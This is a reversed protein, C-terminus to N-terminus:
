IYPPLTLDDKDTNIRRVTTSNAEVNYGPQPIVEGQFRRLGNYTGDMFKAKSDEIFPKKETIRVFRPFRYEDISIPM